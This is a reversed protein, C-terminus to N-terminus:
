PARGLDADIGAYVLRPQVPLFSADGVDALNDVGVSLDLGRALRQALRLDVLAYAPADVTDDGVFFPRPGVLMARGTLSPGVSGARVTTGVTGRLAARGELPRDATLDRTHLWSGSLDLSWLRSPDLSAGVDVGTTVAEGVNVYGYRVLGPTEELTGIQVLDLLHDTHVNGTLALADSATLEVGAALSTSREPRLDPNGEVRYGVAANDFSLLLERFSPARWGSGVSGRLTLRPLPDYRLGVSPVVAGGFWSDADGRLGLVVDFPRQRGMRWEDQVYLAGTERRGSGGDLRESRLEGHDAEAGLTLTHRGMVRDLQSDLQWLLERTEQYTDLSAAERQDSLYQDRFTSVGVSTKWRTVEDPLADATLQALGDETLNRRDLVAGGVGLDVGRADVASWSGRASLRLDRGARWDVSAAGDGQTLANGTTAPDTPDDDWPSSGHWGADLRIGVDGSSWSLGANADGGTPATGRASVDAALPGQASRTVIQVVGGMADSGYLASAAGKLIEVREIQDVPIRSLDVTGDKRGVVRQGDVLLLTHQPELGRLRVAAGLLGRQVDVGPQQELLESLDRAGSAVIADRDIVEVAVPADGLRRPTRTGTVVVVEVEDDDVPEALAPLAALAIM